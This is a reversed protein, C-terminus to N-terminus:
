MRGIEGGTQSQQSGPEDGPVRRAGPAQADKRGKRRGCPEGSVQFAPVATRFDGAAEPRRRSWEEEGEEEM